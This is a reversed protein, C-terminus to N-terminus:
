SDSRLRPPTGNTHWFIGCQFRRRPGSFDLNGDADIGDKLGLADRESASPLKNLMYRSRRDPTSRHLLLIPRSWGDGDDSHSSNIGAQGSIVRGNESHPNALEQRMGCRLNPAFIHGTTFTESPFSLAIRYHEQRSLHKAFFEADEEEFAKWSSQFAGNKSKHHESQFVSLQSSKSVEYDEWSLIGSRWLDLERKTSIGKLHQFTSLLM